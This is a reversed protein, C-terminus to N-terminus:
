LWNKWSKEDFLQKATRKRKTDSLTQLFTTLLERKDMIEKVGRASQSFGNTNRREIEDITTVRDREFRGRIEEARNSFENRIEDERKRFEESLGSYKEEIERIEREIAAIKDDLVREQSRCEQEFRIEELEFDRIQEEVSKNGVGFRELDEEVRRIESQCEPEFNEEEERISDEENELQERKRFYRNELDSYQEIEKGKRSEFDEQIRTRASEIQNCEPEFQRDIEGQIRNQLERLRERNLETNREIRQIEDGLAQEITRYSESALCKEISRILNNIQSARCKYDEEFLKRQLEDAQSIGKSDRSPIRIYETNAEENNYIWFTNITKYFTDEIEKPSSKPIFVQVTNIGLKRIKVLKDPTVKHTAVIEIFLIPRNQKDFFTIDPKILLNRSEDKKWDIANEYVISGEDNEFFYLEIGIKHAYIIESDRIKNALGEIDKPPFKVVAPVKIQMIRQLIEKALKHRHSEDSFTCLHKKEVDKPDHSFHHILIKGKKAQMERGCGMCFYGKRGSEADSIHIISEDIKKAYVNQEKEQTDM